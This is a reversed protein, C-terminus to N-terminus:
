EESFWIDAEYLWGAADWRGWIIGTCKSKDPEVSCNEFLTRKLKLNSEPIIAFIEEVQEGNHYLPFSTHHTTTDRLYAANFELKRGYYKSPALAFDLTDIIKGTDLDKIKTSGVVEQAISQVTLIMWVSCSFVLLRVM